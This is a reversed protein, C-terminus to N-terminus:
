AVDSQKGQLDQGKLYDEIVSLCFSSEGVRAKRGYAIKLKDIHKKMLDRLDASIRFSVTQSLKEM